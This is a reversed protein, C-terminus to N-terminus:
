IDKKKYNEDYIIKVSPKIEKLKDLIEEDPTKDNYFKSIEKLMEIKNKKKSKKYCIEDKKINWDIGEYGDRFKASNLRNTNNINPKPTKYAKILDKM